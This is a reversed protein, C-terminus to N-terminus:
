LSKHLLRQIACWEQYESENWTTRFKHLLEYSRKRLGDIYDAHAPETSGNEPHSAAFLHLPAAQKSVHLTAM